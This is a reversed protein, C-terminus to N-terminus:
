GNDMWLFSGVQCSVCLKTNTPKLFGTQEHSPQSFTSAQVGSPRDTSSPESTEDSSVDQNDIESLIQERRHTIEPDTLACDPENTGFISPLTDVQGGFIDSFTKTLIFYIANLKKHGTPSNYMYKHKLCKGIVIRNINAKETDGLKHFAAAVHAFTFMAPPDSPSEPLGLETFINM